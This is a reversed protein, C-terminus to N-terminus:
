GAMAEALYNREADTMTGWKSSVVDLIEDMSKLSGDGNSVNIDFQQLAKGAKNFEEQTIGLEEGLDKISFTRAVIM